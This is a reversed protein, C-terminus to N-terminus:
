WSQALEEFVKSDMLPDSIVSNSFNICLDKLYTNECITYSGGAIQCSDIVVNGYLQGRGRSYIASKDIWVKGYASVNGMMKSNTIRVNGYITVDDQITSNDQIIAEGFVWANGTVTTEEQYVNGYVRAEDDVWCNGEQSLNKESEIWGGLDGKRITKGLIQFDKLAVIRKLVRGEIELTDGTFEYKKVSNTQFDM